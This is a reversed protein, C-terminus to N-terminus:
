HKIETTVKESISQIRRGHKVDKTQHFTLKKIIGNNAHRLPATQARLLKAM